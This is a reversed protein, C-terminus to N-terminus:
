YTTGYRQMMSRQMAAQHANWLQQDQYQQQLAQTAQQQQYAGLLAGRAAQMQAEYGLQEQQVCQALAQGGTFGYGRCTAAHDELTPACAMVLCCLALAASGRWCPWSRWYAGYVNFRPDIDRVRTRWPKAWGPRWVEIMADRPPRSGMWYSWGDGPPLPPLVEGELAPKQVLRRLWGVM